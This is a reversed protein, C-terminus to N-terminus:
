CATPERTTPTVLHPSRDSLTRVIGTAFEAFDIRGSDDNDLQEFVFQVDDPQVSLGLHSMAGGLGNVTMEGSDEDAFEDFTETLMRFKLEHAEFSSFASAALASSRRRMRSACSAAADVASM